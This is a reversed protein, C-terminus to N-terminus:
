IRKTFDLHKQIKYIVVGGFSMSILEGIAVTIYTGWFPLGYIYVLEWAIVFMMLSCVVTNVVMRVKISNVKRYILYAVSLMLGTQSTGVIVDIMGLPSFLNAIACGIAVPIIYKKNFVVLHNFMEGLRFQIVGFSFVGFTLTIAVYLAAIIATTTLFKTKKNTLMITSRRTKNLPIKRVAM